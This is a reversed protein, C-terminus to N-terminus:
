AREGMLVRVAFRVARTLTSSRCKDAHWCEAKRPTMCARAEQVAEDYGQLYGDVFALQAEDLSERGRLAATDVRAPAELEPAM